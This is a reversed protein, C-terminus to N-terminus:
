SKALARLARRNKRMVRRAVTMQEDFDANAARLAIGRSTVTVSLAEGVKVHLHALLDDSLIVGASDGIKQIKLRDM